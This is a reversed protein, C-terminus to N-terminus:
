SRDIKINNLSDAISESELMLLELVDDSCHMPQAFDVQSSDLDAMMHASEFEGIEPFHSKYNHTKEPQEKLYYNGMM